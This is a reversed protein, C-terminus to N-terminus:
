VRLLFIFSWSKVRLGVKISQRSESGESLRFFLVILCIKIFCEFFADAVDPFKCGSQVYLSCTLSESLKCIVEFPIIVDLAAKTLWLFSGIGVLNPNLKEPFPGTRGFDPCKELMLGRM